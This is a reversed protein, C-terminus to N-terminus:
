KTIEDLFQELQKFEVYNKGNTANCRLDDLMELCNKCTLSRLPSHFISYTIGCETKYVASVITLCKPCQNWSKM